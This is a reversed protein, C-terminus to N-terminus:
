GEASALLKTVIKIIATGEIKKMIYIIFLGTDQEDIVEVVLIVVVQSFFIFVVQCLPIFLFFKVLDKLFNV